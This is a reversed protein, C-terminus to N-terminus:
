AHDVIQPQGELRATVEKLACIMTARDGNSIYDARQNDGQEDGFPFTLLVFGNRRDGGKLEGNLIDDIGQAISQLVRGYAARDNRNAEM